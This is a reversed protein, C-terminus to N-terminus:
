CRALNSESMVFTPNPRGLRGYSRTKITDFTRGNMLTSFKEAMADTEWNGTGSDDTKVYNYKQTLGAQIGNKKRIEFVHDQTCGLIEAIQGDNFFQGAMRYVIAIIAPDSKDIIPKM